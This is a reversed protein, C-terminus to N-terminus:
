NLLQEHSAAPPGVELVERLREVPRVYYPNERLTRGHIVYPHTALLEMMMRGSIENIDYVCLLTAQYREILFNVRSEYEMLEKTDAGGHCAWDMVGAGRARRGNRELEALAGQVLEYMRSAGFPGGKMYWEDATLVHLKGLEISQSVDIGHEQLRRCHDAYRDAGVVTIIEEDLDLGERYFPALIDYEETRSDFFACIHGPEDLHRGCLTVTRPASM